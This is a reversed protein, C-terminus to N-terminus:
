NTRVNTIGGRQTTTRCSASQRLDSSKEQSTETRYGNETQFRAMEVPPTSPITPSRRHPELENTGPAQLKCDSRRTCDFKNEIGRWRLNNRERAKGEPRAEDTRPRQSQCTTRKYVNASKNSNGPLSSYDLINEHGDTHRDTRMDRFGCSRVEASERHMNGTATARYETSPTAIHQTSGTKHIVDYKWMTPEM